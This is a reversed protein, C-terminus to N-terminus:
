FIYKGYICFKLKVLLYLRIISPLLETTGFIYNWFFQCFTYRLTISVKTSLCLGKICLAGKSDHTTSGSNGHGAQARPSEQPRPLARLQAFGQLSSLPKGLSNVHLTGALHFCSPSSPAQLPWTIQSIFLYYSTVCWLFPRVLSLLWTKQNSMTMLWLERQGVKSGKPKLILDKSHIKQSFNM